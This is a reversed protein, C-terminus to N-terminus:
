GEKWKYIDLNVKNNYVEIGEKELRQKQVDKGGFVFADALEGKSNLVKYCPYKNGDPNKHLINGVARALGKNGLYEAIQKYTVVKGKPITTLYNYVKQELNNGTIGCRNGNVLNYSNDVLKIINETEIKDDLRVTIWSKKNMHYGLFIAENDIIGEIKEKQYKLDIVEIKKNSECKKNLKSEEITLLVGYWKKNKNNRFIANDDYKEWLFELDDNYKQKIYKIIEKAQKSKFIEKYTCKEIFDNIINQYEQRVRGVFEGTATEIDVLAYETNNEIDIIKSYRTTNSILINIEFTNELINVKYIYNDKDIVFGYDLLRNYAISRKSLEIDLNRM